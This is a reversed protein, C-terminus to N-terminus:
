RTGLSSPCRDRTSALFYTRDVRQELLRKEPKAADAVVRRAFAELFRGYGALTAADNAM